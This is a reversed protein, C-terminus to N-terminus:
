HRWVVLVGRDMAESIVGPLSELTFWRDGKIGTAEDELCVGADLINLAQNVVCELRRGRFRYRVIREDGSGRVSLLEAGSVQLASRAAAEFDHAALARRGRATEALQIVRRIEDLREADLRRQEAAQRRLTSWRFALVLAPSAPIGSLHQRRDEYAERVQQEAGDLMSRERYVLGTPTSAAIVHTFRELTEDVCYLPQTEYIFRDASVNVRASDPVLRDGVVYGLQKAMWRGWEPCPEAEGVVECYRGHPRFRYWGHQRPRPGRLRYTTEGAHVVGCGWWPLTLVEHGQLHQRWSM